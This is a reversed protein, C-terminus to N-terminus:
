KEIGLFDNNLPGRGQGEDFFYYWNFISLNSLINLKLVILDAICFQQCFSSKLLKSYANISVAYFLTTLGGNLEIDLVSSETNLVYLNAKDKVASYQINQLYYLESM